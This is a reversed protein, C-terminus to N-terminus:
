EPGLFATLQDYMWDIDGQNVGAFPTLASVKRRAYKLSGSILAMGIKLVDQNELISDIDVDSKGAVVNRTGFDRIIQMGYEAATLIVPAVQDDAIVSVHNTVTDNLITQEAGSLANQFEISVDTGITNIVPLPLTAAVIENSLRKPNIQKVFNYTAM